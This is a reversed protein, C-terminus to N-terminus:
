WSILLIRGNMWSWKIRGLLMEWHGIMVDMAKAFHIAHICLQSQSVVWLWLCMLLQELTNHPIKLLKLAKSSLNRLPQLGWSDSQSITFKNQSYLISSVEDSIIRSVYLLSIPLPTCSCSYIFDKGFDRGYFKRVKYFCANKWPISAATNIFTWVKRTSILPVSVFWDLSSTFAAACLIHSIWFHPGQHLLPHFHNALSPFVLWDPTAADQKVGSCFPFSNASSSYSPIFPSITQKNTQKQFCPSCSCNNKHTFCACLFEMALTTNRMPVFHHSTISHRGSASVSMLGDWAVPNELCCCWSCCRNPLILNPKRGSVQACFAGVRVDMENFM